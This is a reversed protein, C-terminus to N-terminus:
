QGTGGFKSPMFKKVFLGTIGAVSGSLTTTVQPCESSLVHAM